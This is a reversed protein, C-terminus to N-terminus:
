KSSSREILLMQGPELHEKDPLRNLRVIADISLDYIQSISWLSEGNMVTHYFKETMVQPSVLTVDVVPHSLRMVPISPVVYGAQDTAVHQPVYFERMSVCGSYFFVLFFFSVICYIVYHKKM